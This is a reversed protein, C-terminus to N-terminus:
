VDRNKTQIRIWWWVWSHRMNVWNGCKNRLLPVATLFVFCRASRLWLQRHEQSEEASDGVQTKEKCGWSTQLILPDVAPPRAM